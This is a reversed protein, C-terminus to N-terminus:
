TNKEGGAHLLLSGITSAGGGNEICIGAVKDGAAATVAKGASDVGVQAGVTITEAQFMKAIGNTQVLVADGSASGGDMITGITAEGDGALTGDPQIFYYEKASLDATSVITSIFGSTQATAM